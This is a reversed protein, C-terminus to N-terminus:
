YRCQPNRHDIMFQNVANRGAAQVALVAGNNQSDQQCAIVADFEDHGPSSCLSMYARHSSGKDLIACWFAHKQWDPWGAYPDQSLSLSSGTVAVAILVLRITSRGM